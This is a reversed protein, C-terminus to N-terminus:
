FRVDVMGGARGRFTKGWEPCSGETLEEELEGVIRAMRVTMWGDGHARQVEFLGSFEQVEIGLLQALAGLAPGDGAGLDPPAPNKDLVVKYLM